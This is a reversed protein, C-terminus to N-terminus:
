LGDQLNVDCLQSAHRGLHQGGQALKGGQGHSAEAVGAGAGAERGEIDSVPRGRCSKEIPDPRVKHHM